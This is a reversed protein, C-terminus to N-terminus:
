LTKITKKTLPMTGPVKAPRTADAIAAFTERVTQEKGNMSPYM